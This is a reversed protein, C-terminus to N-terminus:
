KLFKKLCKCLRPCYILMLVKLKVKLTVNPCRHTIFITPYDLIGNSHTKEVLLNKLSRKKAWQSPNRLPKLEYKKALLSFISQDERHSIYYPYLSKTSNTDDPFLLEENQAYELFEGFFKISMPSKKCVIYTALYQETDTYKEGVCNMIKFASPKTYAKEILGDLSFCLIDQKIEEMAKILYDIQNIFYTGSDCYILYDGDNLNVLTRYIFYPKWIWLGAGRKMSLTKINKSVFDKDINDPKYEIVKDVKGKKYAMKTCYKQAPEYLTDAYNIVIKM